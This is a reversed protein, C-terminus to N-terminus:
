HKEIVCVCMKVFMEKLGPIKAFLAFYKRLPIERYFYPVINQKKLIRHFRAITMKNIYSITEKGKDDTSFRLALREQEDPLGKVLDKYAQILTKESFFM